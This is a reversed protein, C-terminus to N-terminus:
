HFDATLTAGGDVNQMRLSEAEHLSGPVVTGWSTRDIELEFTGLYEVDGNEMVLECRYTGPQDAILYVWSPNGEYIFVTGERREASHLEKAGFYEGDATQLAAQYRAAVDREDDVAWLVGGATLVSAIAAAAALSGLRRALSRRRGTSFRELVRSEFGPPPERLPALMLIEDGVRSLEEVLRRCDTCSGLHALGRAREEGVAIGLALEPALGMVEECKPRENM